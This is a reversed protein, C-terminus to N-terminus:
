IWRPTVDGSEYGVSAREVSGTCAWAALLQPQLRQMACECGNGLVWRQSKGDPQLDGPGGSGVSPMSAAGATSRYHTWSKSVGRVLAHRYNGLKLPPSSAVNAERYTFAQVARSKDLQRILQRVHM